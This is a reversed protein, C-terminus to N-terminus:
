HMFMSHCTRAILTSGHNSDAIDDYRDVTLVECNKLDSNNLDQYVAGYGGFTKATVNAVIWADDFSYKNLTSRM